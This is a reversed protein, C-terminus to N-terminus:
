GLGYVWFLNAAKQLWAESRVADAQRAERIWGPSEHGRHPTVSM